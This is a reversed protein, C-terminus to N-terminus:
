SEYLESETIVIEKESFHQTAYNIIFLNPHVCRNIILCKQNTDVLTSVEEKRTLRDIERLQNYLTETVYIQLPEQIVDNKIEMNEGRKELVGM